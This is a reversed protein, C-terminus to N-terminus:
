TQKKVHDFLTTAYNCRSPSFLEQNSVPHLRVGQGQLDPGGPHIWLALLDEAPAGGLPRQHRRRLVRHLQDPQVPQLGRRVDPAQRQSFHSFPPFSENSFYPFERSTNEFKKLITLTAIKSFLCFSDRWVSCPSSSSSKGAGRQVQGMGFDNNGHAPAPAYRPQISAASIFGEMWGDSKPPRAATRKINMHRNKEGPSTPQNSAQPTRGDERGHTRKM